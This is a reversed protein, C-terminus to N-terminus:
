PHVGLLRLTQRLMTSLVVVNLVVHLSPHLLKAIGLPLFFCKRVFYEQTREYLGSDEDFNWKCSRYFKLERILCRAAHVFGRAFVYFVLAYLATGLAGRINVAFM